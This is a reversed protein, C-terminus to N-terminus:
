FSILLMVEASKPLLTLTIVGAQDSNDNKCSAQGIIMAPEPVNNLQRSVEAKASLSIGHWSLCLKIEGFKELM